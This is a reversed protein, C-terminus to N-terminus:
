RLLAMQFNQGVSIKTSKFAHWYVNICAHIDWKCAFTHKTHTCTNPHTMCKHKKCMDKEKLRHTQVYRETQTHTTETKPTNMRHHQSSDLTLRLEKLSFEEVCVKDQFVQLCVCVYVCMCMYVCECVCVYECVCMYICVCVYMSSYAGSVSWEGTPSPSYGTHIYAHIHKHIYTYTHIHTKIYLVLIYAHAKIHASARASHQAFVRYTHTYTDIYTHIYHIYHIFAYTRGRLVSQKYTYM